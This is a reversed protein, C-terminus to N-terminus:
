AGQTAPPPEYIGHALLDGPDFTSLLNIQEIGNVFFQYRVTVEIPHTTAEVDWRVNGNTPDVTQATTTTAHAIGGTAVTVRWIVTSGGVSQPPSVCTIPPQTDLTTDTVAKNSYGVGNYYYIRGSADISASPVTATSEGAVARVTDQYAVLRVCYNNDNTRTTSMGTPATMGSSPFGGLQITGLVRQAQADILGDENTGGV